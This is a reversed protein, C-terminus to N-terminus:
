GVGSIVPFNNASSAMGSFMSRIRVRSQFLIRVPLQNTAIMM